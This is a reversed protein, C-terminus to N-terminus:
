ITRWGFHEAIIGAGGRALLIGLIIGTTLMATVYGLRAQPVRKSAYAPLLYPAITVFGLVTSAILFLEFREAFAMVAVALFQGFVTVTTLVRNSLRDGLPLLLLIGVALAIQNMAPVIGVMGEGLNFEEAILSIIPHIYYANAVVVGSAVALLLIQFNSLTGSRDAQTM